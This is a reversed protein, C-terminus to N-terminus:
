FGVCLLAIETKWELLSCLEVRSVPLLLYFLDCSLLKGTLKLYILKYSIKKFYNAYSIFNRTMSKLQKSCKQSHSFHFFSIGSM